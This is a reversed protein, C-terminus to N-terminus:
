WIWRLTYTPTKSNRFVVYETFSPLLQMFFISVMIMSYIYQLLMKGTRKVNRYGFMRFSFFCLFFFKYREESARTANMGHWRVAYYYQPSNMTTMKSLLFSFFNVNETKKKKKSFYSSIKCTAFAWLTPLYRTTQSWCWYYHFRVVLDHGQEAVSWGFHLIFTHHGTSFCTLQIFIFISFFINRCPHFFSLFFSLCPFFFSFCIRVCVLANHKLQWILWKSFQSWFNEILM